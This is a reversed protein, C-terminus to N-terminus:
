EDVDSPSVKAKPLIEKLEEVTSCVHLFPAAELSSRSHSGWDVGISPMRRSSLSLSLSLFTRAARTLREDEFPEGEIARARDANSRSM